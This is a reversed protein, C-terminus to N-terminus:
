KTLKYLLWLGLFLVVITIAPIIRVGHFNGNTVRMLYPFTTFLSPAARNTEDGISAAVNVIRLHISAKDNTSDGAIVTLTAEIKKTFFDRSEERYNLEVTSGANIVVCNLPPDVQCSTVARNTSVPIKFTVPNETFDWIYLYKDVLNSELTLNVVPYVITTGGGGGGGSSGGGETSATYTLSLSQAASNKVTANDTMNVKWITYTGEALPTYNVAYTVSTANAATLTM